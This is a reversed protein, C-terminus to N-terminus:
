RRSRHACPSRRDADDDAARRDRQEAERRVEDHQRRSGARADAGPGADPVHRHVDGRLTPRPAAGSARQHRAEVGPQLMPVTSRRRCRRAPRESRVEAGAACKPSCRGPRRHRDADHQMGTVQGVTAVLGVVVDYCSRAALVVDGTVARPGSIRSRRSSPSPTITSRRPRPPPRPWRSARWRHQVSVRSADPAVAARPSRRRRRRAHGSARAAPLLTTSASPGPGTRRLRRPRRRPRHRRDSSVTGHSPTAYKPHAATPGRCRSRTGARWSHRRRSARVRARRRDGRDRRDGVGAEEDARRQDAGEGM